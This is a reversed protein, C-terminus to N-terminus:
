AGERDIKRLAELVKTSKTACPDNQSITWVALNMFGEARGSALLSWFREAFCATLFSKLVGPRKEDFSLLMEDQRTQGKQTM